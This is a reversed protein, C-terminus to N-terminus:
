NIINIKRYIKAFENRCQSPNLERNTFGDFLSNDSEIRFYYDEDVWFDVAPTPSIKNIIRELYEKTELYNALLHQMFSDSYHTNKESPSFVIYSNEYTTWNDLGRFQISNLIEVIKQTDAPFKLGIVENLLM